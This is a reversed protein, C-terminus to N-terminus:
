KQELHSVHENSRVAILNTATAATTQKDPESRVKVHDDYSGWEIIATSVTSAAVNVQQQQQQQQLLLLCKQYSLGVVQNNPLPVLTTVNRKCTEKRVCVPALPQELSGVYSGWKVNHVLRHISTTPLHQECVSAAFASHRQNTNNLSSAKSALLTALHSQPHAAAFLQKPTQGWTKIMTEIAARHVPDAIQEVPYGFYCAPHYMNISDHAARGSQKYGFILDIWDHLGCTVHDSELAQRMVHVFLRPEHRCWAPLVVNDIYDGNQRAGFNFGQRNTFFEHLFFFEPILEKYDTTSESSSLMYSTNM